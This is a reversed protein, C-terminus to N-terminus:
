ISLLRNQLGLVVATNTSKKVMQENNALPMTLVAASYTTPRPMTNEYLIM